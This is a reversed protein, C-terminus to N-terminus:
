WVFPILRYRVEYGALERKLFQEEVLIRVALMAIPFSALMAAAYSELWVPLGSLMLVAGAYM